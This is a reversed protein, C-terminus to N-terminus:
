GCHLESGKGKGQGQDACDKGHEPQPDPKARPTTAPQRSPTDTQTETSTQGAGTPEPETAGAAVPAPQSTERTAREGGPDDRHTTRARVPRERRVPQTKVRVDKVRDDVVSPLDIPPAATRAAEARVSGPPGEPVGVGPTLAAAGLVVSAGVAGAASALSSAGTQKLAVAVPKVPKFAGRFLLLLAAAPIAAAKPLTGLFANVVRPDFQTGAGEKLADIAPDRGLGARYPRTSVMADFADAVAIIRAHLPIDEGSLGDPYGHGDYREHHHRVAAVVDDSGVKSVMWAGLAVHQEVTAREEPTLSGPKRIISEPVRIKGVDHLAAAKQLDDMQRSSLGLALGTRYAHREVRRSHGHTYPDKSELAATLEKLVGLQQQPTMRPLSPKAQDLGLLRASESVKEEARRRRLWGWIMLEGFSIEASGPRRMWIAAGVVSVVIAVLVSVGSTVWPDPDPEVRALMGFVAVLPFLLVAVTAAIAHPLYRGMDVYEFRRQM